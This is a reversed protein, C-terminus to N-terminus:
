AINNKPKPAKFSIFRWSNGPKSKYVFGCKFNNIQDTSWRYNSDNHKGDTYIQTHGYKVHNESSADDTCWYVVIDGISWNGKEVKNITEAKSLAGLDTKIYGIKELNKHYGELNANGGAAHPTGVEVDKGQILRIYNNAHNFTFKACKGASITDGITSTVAKKIFDKQTSTTPSKTEPVEIPDNVSNTPDTGKSDDEDFIDEKANVDPSWNSIESYEDALETNNEEQYIFGDPSQTVVKPPDGVYVKVDKTDQKVKVKFDPPLVVNLKIKSSSMGTPKNDETAPEPLKVPPNIPSIWDLKTTYEKESIALKGQYSPIKQSWLSVINDLISKDLVKGLIKTTDNGDYKILEGEDKSLTIIEDSGKAKNDYSGRGDRIEVRKFFKSTDLSSKVLKGDTDLENGSDDSWEEGGEVFFDKIGDERVEVRTWEISIYAGNNLFYYDFGFGRYKPSYSDSWPDQVIKYAPVSKVSINSTFVVKGFSDYKVFEGGQLKSNTSIFDKIFEDSTYKDYRGSLDYTIAQWTVYETGENKGEVKRKNNFLGDKYITVKIDSLGENYRQLSKRVRVSKIIDKDNAM